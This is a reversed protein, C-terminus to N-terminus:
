PNLFLRLAQYDENSLNARVRMHRAITGSIRQSFGEPANHCRSCNEAFVQQGRDSKAVPAPKTQPQSQDQHPANKALALFPMLAAFLLGGSLTIRRHKM